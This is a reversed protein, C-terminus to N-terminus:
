SSEASVFAYAAMVGLVGAGHIALQPVAGRRNYALLLDAVPALTCLALGARMAPRDNAIAAWLVFGGMVLDRAAAARVYAHTDADDNPIGYARTAPQPWRLAVAGIGLVAVAGLATAFRGFTV